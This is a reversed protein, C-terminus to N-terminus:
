INSFFLFIQFFNYNKKSKKEDSMEKLLLKKSYKIYDSIKQPSLKKKKAIENVSLNEYFRLYLVEKYKPKLNDILNRWIKRQNEEEEKEELDIAFDNKNDFNESIHENLKERRSNASYYDKLYQSITNHIIGNIYGSLSSGKEPDFGGNKLKEMLGIFVDNLIEQRDEKNHVRMGVIMRVKPYYANILANEAQINGESIKKLIKKENLKDM